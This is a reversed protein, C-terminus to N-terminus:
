KLRGEAYMGVLRAAKFYGVACYADGEFPSVDM